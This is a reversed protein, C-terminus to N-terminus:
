AVQLCRSRLVSAAQQAVFGAQGQALQVQADAQAMHAHAGGTLAWAPASM